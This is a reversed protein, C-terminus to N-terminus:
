RSGRKMHTALTYTYQTHYINKTSMVGRASAHGPTIDIKFFIKVLKKLFRLFNWNKQVEAQLKPFFISYSRM